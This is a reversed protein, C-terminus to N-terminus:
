PRLQPQSSFDPSIRSIQPGRVEENDDYGSPSELGSGGNRDGGLIATQKKEPRTGRRTLVM